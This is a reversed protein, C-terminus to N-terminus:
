GSLSPVLKNFTELPKTLILHFLEQAWDMGPEGSIQVEKGVEQETQQFARAYDPTNSGLLPVSLPLNLFFIFKNFLHGTAEM